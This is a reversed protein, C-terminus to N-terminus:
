LFWGPRGSFPAGLVGRKPPRPDDDERDRWKSIRGSVERRWEPFVERSLRRVHAPTRALGEAARRSTRLASDRLWGAAREATTQNYSQLYLPQLPPRVASQRFLGMVKAHEPIDTYRVGNVDKPLRWECRTGVREALVDRLTSVTLLEDGVLVIKEPTVPSHMEAAAILESLQDTMRHVPVVAAKRLEDLRLFSGEAFVALPLRGEGNGPFLADRADALLKRLTLEGVCNMSRVIEQVVHDSGFPIHASYCLADDVYLAGCTHRSGVDIVLTGNTRESQRLLGGACSPASLAVDVTIGLRKLSDLLDFIRNRIGLVVCARLALTHARYRIPDSVIEEGDVVYHLPHLECVINRQTTYRMLLERQVRHVDAPTVVSQRKRRMRSHEDIAIEHRAIVCNQEAFAAPYGLFFKSYEIGHCALRGWAKATAEEISSLSSRQGKPPAAEESEWPIPYLRTSREFYTAAAVVRSDGIVAEAFVRDPDSRWLDALVRHYGRIMIPAQEDNTGTTRNM